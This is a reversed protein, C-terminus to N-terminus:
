FEELLKEMREVFEFAINLASEAEERTAFYSVDYQDAHRTERLRDLLDVWERELKGKKVYMEELYRAICFHSKERWGDRYLVARASHFMALYSSILCSDYLENNLSKEAEELWREARKMSQRAKDASPTVRRLLRKRVCSEFDLTRM